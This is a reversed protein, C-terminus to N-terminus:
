AWVGNGAQRVTAKYKTLNGNQALVEYDVLRTEVTFTKSDGPAFILTRTAGQPDTDPTGFVVHPGTTATTDWIGEITIDPVRSLGTPTHSEFAVGFPNTQETLAEKKVGGISTVFPTIVRITGGPGDDYSVAVSPSGYKGPVVAV